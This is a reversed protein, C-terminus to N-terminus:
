TRRRVEVTRHIILYWLSLSQDASHELLVRILSYGNRLYDLMRPVLIQVQLLGQRWSVM